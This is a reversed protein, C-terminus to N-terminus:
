QTRMRIRGFPLQEFFVRCREYWVRWSSQFTSPPWRPFSRQSVSFQSGHCGRAVVTQYRCENVQSRDRRRSDAVAGPKKWQPSNEQADCHWYAARGALSWNRCTVWSTPMSFRPALGFRVLDFRLTWFRGRRNISGRNGDNSTKSNRFITNTTPAESRTRERSESHNRRFRSVGWDRYWNSEVQNLFATEHHSFTRTGFVGGGGRTRHNASKPQNAAAVWNVIWPGKPRRETYRGFTRGPFISGYGEVAVSIKWTDVISVERRHGALRSRCHQDATQMSDMPARRLFFPTRVFVHDFFPEECVVLAEAYAVAFGIILM